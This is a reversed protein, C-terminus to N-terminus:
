APVVGVAQWADRVANVHVATSGPIQSAADITVRAFQAFETGEIVRPDQVAAYWIRGAGEWARGGIASAAHYFARNPIGSNIHVGGNDQWTNVFDNMHGPQPDQGLVPDNYATGPNSMSRLAVGQVNPGLLDAGILWDAQDATQGLVWQKILSGWVDSLHENLAGPQLMYVLGAEIETVGHGLEHGIVDLSRTFRLFLDGDGDGFVMQRGNWFANGYSDGYHVTARLAMGAGDISNRRYIENFFDFTSGLGDYAEDAAADGTAAGGESRVLRGPLVESGGADHIIRQRNPVASLASMLQADRASRRVVTSRFARFTTDNATTNLAWKRQEADGHNAISRM